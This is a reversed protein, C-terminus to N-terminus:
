WLYLPWPVGLENSDVFLFGTETAFEGLDVVAPTEYPIRETQEMNEM